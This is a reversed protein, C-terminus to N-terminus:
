AAKRSRKAAARPGPRDIAERLRAVFSEFTFPKQLFTSDSRKVGHQDIADDSHGSTFLVRLAPRSARLQEALEAGSMGPMVVDTVMLDIPRAEREALALAEAGS